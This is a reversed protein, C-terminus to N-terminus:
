YERACWPRSDHRAYKAQMACLAVNHINSENYFSHRTSEEYTREIANQAKSTGRDHARPMNLQCHVKLLTTRIPRM